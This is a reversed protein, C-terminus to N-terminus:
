HKENYKMRTINNQLSMNRISVKRFQYIDNWFTIKM